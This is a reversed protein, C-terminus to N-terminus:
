VVKRDKEYGICNCYYDIWTNAPKLKFGKSHSVKSETRLKPSDLLDEAKSNHAAYTSLSVQILLLWPQNNKDETYGVADIVPHCHRLRYLVKKKLEKM